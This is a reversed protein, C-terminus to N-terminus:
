FYLGLQVSDIEANVAPVYDEAIFKALDVFAIDSLSAAPTDRLLASDRDLYYFVWARPIQPGSLGPVTFQLNYPGCSSCSIWVWEAKGWPLLRGAASASVGCAHHYALLAHYQDAPIHTLNTDDLLILENLSLKLCDKAAKRAVDEWQYRCTIAFVSMPEAAHMEYTDIAMEIIHALQELNDFDVIAEAGPYWVSLFLLLVDSQETVPIIPVEPESEPQPTAFMDNFIPSALSLVTCYVHFDFGDSSRLITDAGVDDFPPPILLPSPSPSPYIASGSM